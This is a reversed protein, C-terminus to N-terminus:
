ENDINKSTKNPKERYKPKLTFSVWVNDLIAPVKSGDLYDKKQFCIFFIISQYLRVSPESTFLQKGLRKYKTIFSLKIQFCVPRPFLVDSAINKTYISILEGFTKQPNSPFFVDKSRFESYPSIQILYAFEKQKNSIIIYIKFKRKM